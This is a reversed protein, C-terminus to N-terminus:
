STMLRVDEASREVLHIREEIRVLYPDPLADAIADSCYTITRSHFDPWYGQAELFPDIGPFRRAM